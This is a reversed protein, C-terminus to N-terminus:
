FCVFILLIYILRLFIHVELSHSYNPKAAQFQSPALNRFLLVYQKTDPITISTYGTLFDSDLPM